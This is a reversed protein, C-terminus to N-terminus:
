DNLNEPWEAYPLVGLSDPDDETAGYKETLRKYETPNNKVWALCCEKCEDFLRNVIVEDGTFTLSNTSGFAKDPLESKCKICIKM